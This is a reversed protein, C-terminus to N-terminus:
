QMMRRKKNLTRYKLWTLDKVLYCQSYDGLPSFKKVENFFIYWDLLAKLTEWGPSPYLHSVAMIGM